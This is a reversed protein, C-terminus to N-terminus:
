EQSAPLEVVQAKSSSAVFSPNLVQVSWSPQIIPVISTSYARVQVARAVM